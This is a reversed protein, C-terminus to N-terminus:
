LVPFTLLYVNTTLVNKSTKLNGNLPKIDEHIHFHVFYIASLRMDGAFVELEIFLKGVADDGAVSSIFSVSSITFFLYLWKPKIDM